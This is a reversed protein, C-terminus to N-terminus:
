PNGFLTCGMERFQRIKERLDEESVDFHSALCTLCYFHSAGRNILKRTLAIEDGSLLRGCQLCAPLIRGAQDHQEIRNCM